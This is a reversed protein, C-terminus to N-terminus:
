KKKQFTADITQKVNHLPGDVAHLQLNIDQFFKAKSKYGLCEDFGKCKIIKFIEKLAFEGLSTHKKPDSHIMSNSLTRKRHTLALDNCQVNKSTSSPSIVNVTVNATSGNDRDNSLSSTTQTNM